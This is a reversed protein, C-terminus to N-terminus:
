GAGVLLMAVAAGIPVTIDDANSPSLAEIMTGAVAATWAYAVIESPLPQWSSGPHLPEASLYAWSVLFASM